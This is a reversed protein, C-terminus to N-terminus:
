VNFMARTTHYIHHIWYEEMWGACLFNLCARGDLRDDTGLLIAGISLPETSTALPAAITAGTTKELRNNDAPDNVWIYENVNPRWMGACFYWQGTSMIVTSDVSPNAVGNGVQLRLAGDTKRVLRYARDAIATSWMGFLHEQDALVPADHFKYWGGLTLGRYTTLIDYDTSGDIEFNFDNPYYFQDDTGDYNVCPILDEFTKYPLSTADMHYGGGAMDLLMEQGGAFLGTGSGPWFGRLFPLNQCVSIARSHAFASESRRQFEGSLTSILASNREQDGM